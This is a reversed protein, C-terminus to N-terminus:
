SDWVRDLVVPMPPFDLNLEERARSTDLTTHRPLHELVTKETSLIGKTRDPLGLRRAVEVAIEAYSVDDEPCLQWVGPRRGTTISAIAKATTGIDIPACRYDTFAEITKGDQFENQWNILLPMSRTFVKSLRIIAFDKVARPLEREVEAKYEGYVTRPNLPAEATVHPTEGDFVLNTSLFSIFVGQESLMQALKLTNTVNIRRAEKPHDRCFALNTAAACLVVSGISDPIRWEAPDALDLQLGEGDRRTTEIFEQGNIQFEEVLAQGILGDGGVVLVPGSM